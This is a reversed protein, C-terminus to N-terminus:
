NPDIRERRARGRSQVDDIAGATLEAARLLEALFAATPSEPGVIKDGLDTVFTNIAEYLNTADAPSLSAFLKDRVLGMTEARHTEIDLAVRQLDNSLKQLQHPTM